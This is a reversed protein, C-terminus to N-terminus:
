MFVYCYDITFPSSEQDLYKHLKHSPKLFQGEHIYVVEREFLDDINLSYLSDNNDNNRHLLSSDLSAYMM